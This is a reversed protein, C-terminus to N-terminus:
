ISNRDLKKENLKSKRLIKSCNFQALWEVNIEKYFYYAPKQAWSKNIEKEKIESESFLQRTLQLPDCTAIWTTWYEQFIQPKGASKQECKLLGFFDFKEVSM